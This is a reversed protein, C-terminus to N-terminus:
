GSFVFTNRYIELHTEPSYLKSILHHMYFDQMVILRLLLHRALTNLRM